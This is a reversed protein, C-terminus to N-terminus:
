QRKVKHHNKHVWARAKHRFAFLDDYVQEETRDGPDYPSEPNVIWRAQVRRSTAALDFLGDFTMAQNEVEFGQVNRMYRDRESSTAEYVEQCMAAWPHEYAPDVWAKGGGNEGYQHVPWHPRRQYIIEPWESDKKRRYLLAGGILVAAFILAIHLDSM